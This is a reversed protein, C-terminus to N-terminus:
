KNIIKCKRLVWVNLRFTLHFFWYVFFCLYHTWHGLFIKSKGLEKLGLSACNFSSIAAIKYRFKSGLPTWVYGPQYSLIDISAETQLICSFVKIFSKGAAYTAVLPTSFEATLSSM